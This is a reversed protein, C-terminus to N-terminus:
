RAAGGCDHGFLIRKGFVRIEPTVTRWCDRLRGRSKRGLVETSLRRNTYIATLDDTVSTAATPAPSVVNERADDERTGQVFLRGGKSFRYISM